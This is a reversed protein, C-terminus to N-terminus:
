TIAAVLQGIGVALALIALVFTARDFRSRAKDLAKTTERLDAVARLVLVALFADGPHLPVSREDIRELLEAADLAYVEAYSEVGVAELVGNTSVAHHESLPRVRMAGPRWGPLRLGTFNAAGPLTPRPQRVLQALTMAARWRCPLYLRV